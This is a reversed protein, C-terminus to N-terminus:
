YCFQQNRQVTKSSFSNLVANNPSVTNQEDSKLMKKQIAQQLKEKEGETLARNCLDWQERKTSRETCQFPEIIFVRNRKLLQESYQLTNQKSCCVKLIECAKFNCPKGEPTAWRWPLGDWGPHASGPSIM